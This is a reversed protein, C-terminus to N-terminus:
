RLAGQVYIIKERVRERLSKSVWDEGDAVRMPWYSKMQM